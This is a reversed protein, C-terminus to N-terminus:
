VSVHPMLSCRSQSAALLARKARRETSHQWCGSVLASAADSSQLELLVADVQAHELATTSAAQNQTHCPSLTHSTYAPAALHRPTPLQPPPPVDHQRHRAAQLPEVGVVDQM